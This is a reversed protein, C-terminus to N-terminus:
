TLAEHETESRERIVATEATSAKLISFGKSLDSSPASRKSFVPSVGIGDPMILIVLM